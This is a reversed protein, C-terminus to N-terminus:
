ETLAGTLRAGFVSAAKDGSTGGTRKNAGARQKRLGCRRYNAGLLKERILAGEGPAFLERGSEKWLEQLKTRSHDTKIATFSPTPPKREDLM